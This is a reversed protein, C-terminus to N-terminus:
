MNSCPLYSNHSSPIKPFEPTPAPSPFRLILSPLVSPHKVQQAHVKNNSFLMTYSLPIEVDAVNAISGAWVGANMCYCTLVLSGCV